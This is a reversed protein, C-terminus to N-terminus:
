YKGALKQRINFIYSYPSDELLSNSRIHGRFVEILIKIVANTGVLVPAIPFPSNITQSVTLIANMEQESIKFPVTLANKITTISNESLRADLLLSQERIEDRLDNLKEEYLNPHIKELSKISKHILRRFSLLEREHKEKFDLLEKVSTNGKPSPLLNELRLSTITMFTNPSPIIQSLTYGRNYERYNTVPELHLKKAITSALFGLYILGSKNEFFVWRNDPSEEYIDLGVLEELLGYGFKNKHIKVEYKRFRPPGIRTLYKKEQVIHLFDNSLDKGDRYDLVQEPAIFRLVGASQLLRSVHNPPINRQTEEPVIPNINDWYLIARRLWSGDPILINPYYLAETFM